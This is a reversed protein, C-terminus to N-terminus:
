ASEQVLPSALSRDLIVLGLNFLLFYLELSSLLHVKPQANISAM